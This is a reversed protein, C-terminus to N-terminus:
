LSVALRDAAADLVREDVATARGHRQLRFHRDNRCCLLFCRQRPVCEFAGESPVPNGHLFVEVRIGTAERFAALEVDTGWERPRRMATLYQLVSIPAYQEYISPRSTYTHLITAAAEANEALQAALNAQDHEDLRNLEDSLERQQEAEESARQAAYALDASQVQLDEEAVYAAPEVGTPLTGAARRELLHQELSIPKHAERIGANHLQHGTYALLINAAAEAERALQKAAEAQALENELELQESLEHQLSANESARQVTLALDLSPNRMEEDTLYPGFVEQQLYDCCLARVKRGLPEVSQKYREVLSRKQPYSSQAYPLGAADHTSLPEFIQALSEFLCDGKGENELWAGHTRCDVAM